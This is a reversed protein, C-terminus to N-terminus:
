LLQVSACAATNVFKKNIMHRSIRQGSVEYKFEQGCVKGKEYFAKFVAPSKWVEEGFRALNKAFEKKDTNINANMKQSYNELNNFINAVEKSSGNSCNEDYDESDVDACINSNNAQYQNALNKIKQLLSVKSKGLGIIERVYDDSWVVELAVQNYGLSDRFAPVRACTEDALGTLTKVRNIYKRLRREQGWNSQYSFKFNGYLKETTNTAGDLGPVEHTIKGGVFSRSEKVQQGLVNVNRQKIYIGTDKMTKEDWVSDEESSNYARESSKRFSIIPIYPTAIGFSKTVGVRSDSLDAIKSVGSDKFKALDMAKTTDGAMFREFAEINDQNDLNFEFAFGNSHSFAKEINANPLFAGLGLSISQIKKRSMEVYVKNPGTKQLFNAWGGTAVVMAGIDIPFIGTGLYFSVGGQSEWYASDSVKWKNIEDFNNPLRKEKEADLESLKNIDTFYVGFGNKVPSIGVSAWQALNPFWRSGNIGLSAFFGHQRAVKFGNGYIDTEISPCAGSEVPTKNIVANMWTYNVTGTGGISDAYAASTSLVACISLTKVLYNLKM